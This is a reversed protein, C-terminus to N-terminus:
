WTTFGCDTGTASRVNHNTLSITCDLNGQETATVIYGVATSSVSYTFYAGEAPAWAPFDASLPGARNEPSAPIITGAAYEPYFQAKRFANELELSLAVLDSAARSAHNHNMYRSYMPLAIAVLNLVIAVIVLVELRTLGPL